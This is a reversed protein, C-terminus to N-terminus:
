CETLYLVYNIIYILYLFQLYVDCWLSCSLFIEFSNYQIRQKTICFNYSFVKKLYLTWALSSRKMSNFLNIRFSLHFCTLDNEFSYANFVSNVSMYDNVVDELGCENLM